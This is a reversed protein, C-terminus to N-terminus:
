TLPIDYLSGNSGAAGTAGGNVGAGGAGGAANSAASLTVNKSGYAIIACGGGGGGGGGQSGAGTAAAGAGGNAHIDTANALSLVRAVVCLVGGGQGGNGSSGGGGGGGGGSGGGGGRLATVAAAGASIGVICGITSASFARPDGLTSAPATVTGIAGGGNTGGIGGAGGAGGLGNASVSAGAGGVSNVSVGAGGAAGALVTGTPPTSTSGAAGDCNVNGGAATTLTGRAFVRYGNTFLQVGAGTVTLNNLFVDRNLSYVTGVKGAWSPAAVTGDLTVNGDAGNGFPAGLAQQWTWTLGDASTKLSQYLNAWTAGDTDAPLSIVVVAGPGPAPSPSQIASPNGTYNAAM